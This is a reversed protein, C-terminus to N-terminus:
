FFVAEGGTLNFAAGTTFRSDDSAIWAFMLGMDEATGFRGAPILAAKDTLMKEVDAGAAAAAEGFGARTMNTLMTGPCVCNVTVNYPALELAMAQTVAIVAAKSASYVGWDPWACKGVQSATNIIRGRRQDMMVRGAARACYILGKVNVALVRDITEDTTNVITGIPQSVGANNALIDLSGYENVIATVAADVAASDTVDLSIAKHRNRPLGAVTDSSDGVDACIVTAGERAFAEAIGAGLGRAAGTVLAVRDDLRGM